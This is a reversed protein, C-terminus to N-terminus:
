LVDYGRLFRRLAKVNSTEVITLGDAAFLDASDGDTLDFDPDVNNTRLTQADGGHDAFPANLAHDVAVVSEDPTFVDSPTHPNFRRAARAAREPTMFRITRSM